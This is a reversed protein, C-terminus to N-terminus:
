KAGASLIRVIGGVILLAGGSALVRVGTFLGAGGILAGLLLMVGGLKRRTNALSRHLENEAEALPGPHLAAECDACVRQGDAITRIESAGVLRPCRSCRAM